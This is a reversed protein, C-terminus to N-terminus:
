GETTSAVEYVFNVTPIAYTTNEMSAFKIGGLKFDFGMVLIGYNDGEETCIFQKIDSYSLIFTIKDDTKYVEVEGLAKDKYIFTAGGRHLGAHAAGTKCSNWTVQSFDADSVGAGPLFGYASAQTDATVNSIVVLSLNCSVLEIENLDVNAATLKGCTIERNGNVAFLDSKLRGEYAVAIGLLRLRRKCTVCSYESDTSVAIM